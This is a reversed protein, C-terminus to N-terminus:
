INFFRNKQLIINHIKIQSVKRSTFGQFCRRRPPKGSTPSVTVWADFSGTKNALGRYSVLNSGNPGGYLITTWPSPPAPAPPPPLIYLM